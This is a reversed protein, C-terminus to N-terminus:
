CELGLGLLITSRSASSIARDRPRDRLLRRHFAGASRRGGARTARRRLAILREYDLPWSRSRTIRRGTRTDRARWRDARLQRNAPSARAHRLRAVCRRGASRDRDGGTPRRRRPAGGRGPRDDPHRGPARSRQHGDAAGGGPLAAVVRVNRARDAVAPLPLRRGGRPLRRDGRRGRLRSTSACARAAVRESAASRRTTPRTASSCCISMADTRRSRTSRACSRRRHTKGGDDQRVRRVRMADDPVGLSARVRRPMAAGGGAPRSRRCAAHPDSRGRADPYEDRLDAAVRPNHVAVLRATRM